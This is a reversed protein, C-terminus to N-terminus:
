PNRLEASRESLAEFSDIIVEESCCLKVEVTYREDGFAALHKSQKTHMRYKTVSSNM